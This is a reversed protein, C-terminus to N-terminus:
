MSRTGRKITVLTSMRLIDDMYQKSLQFDSGRYFEAKIGMARIAKEWIQCQEQIYRWSGKRNLFAHVDALLIKVKFGARQLDKLKVLTSFTGIHLPGSPEYGCYTIPQKKSKLLATLEEERVIEETNRQILALKQKLNM